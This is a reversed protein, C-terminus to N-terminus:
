VSAWLVNIIPVITQYVKYRYCKWNADASLDITPGGDWSTPASTTTDCAGGPTSPKEPLQSRVVVALRVAKIRKMDATPPASWNSGATISCGTDATAAGTWCNVEQSATPAVGYQAQVNVINAVMDIEPTSDSAGGACGSASAELNSRHLFYEDKNTVKRVQFGRRVMAGANIVIDSTGYGAPDFLVGNFGGPPNYNSQGSGTLFFISTVNNGGQTGTVQMRACQKSGDPAAFIVFDCANLGSVSNVNTKNSPTPMAVTIHLPAAGTPNASYLVQIVDSNTATDSPLASASIAAAVSTQDIIRVPIGTSSTVTGTGSYYSNIVSCYSAGANWLGFGAMRMEGEMLRMALLGNTQSDAGSTTTRKQGEAMAFVQMIILVTISGLVMAIMAEVLGFGRSRRNTNAPAPIQRM